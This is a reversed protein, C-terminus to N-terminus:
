EKWRVLKVWYVWGLNEKMDVNHEHKEHYKCSNGVVVAAVEILRINLKEKMNVDRGVGMMGCVM